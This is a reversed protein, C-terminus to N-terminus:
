RSSPRLKRRRRAEKDTLLWTGALKKMKELGANTPAAPLKPEAKGVAEEAWLPAALVAALISWALFSRMTKM